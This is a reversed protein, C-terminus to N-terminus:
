KCGNSVVKLEFAVIGHKEEDIPKYYSYYIKLGDELNEITCLTKNLGETYLYYTLCQYVRKSLIVTRLERKIGYDENYWDIQDGEEMSTWDGQNLRGEVTKCGVSILIFWPESLHKRYLKVM